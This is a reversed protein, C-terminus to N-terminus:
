ILSQLAKNVIPLLNPTTEKYRELIDEIIVKNNNANTTRSKM